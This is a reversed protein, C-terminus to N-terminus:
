HFRSDSINVCYLMVSLHISTYKSGKARGLKNKLDKIKSKVQKERLRLKNKKPRLMMLPKNKLKEKDTTGGGKQKPTHV